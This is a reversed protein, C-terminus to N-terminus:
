FAAKIFKVSEIFSDAQIQGLILGQPLGTMDLSNTGSSLLWSGLRTGSSTYLILKASSCDKPLRVNLVNSVTTPYIISKRVKIQQTAVPTVSELLFPQGIM